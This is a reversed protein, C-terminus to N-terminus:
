GNEEQDGGPAPDLVYVGPLFRYQENFDLGYGVVFGDEMTFGVYDAEFHVRRRKRKDLFACVKVSRPNRLKLVDVIHRLTLGSDLIDEVVLVDRGAIDTEIDKTIVIKGSSETGAGYSAARIFDTQCPVSLARILDAMFVFAGKLVGVVLIERGAYDRSIEGAMERVRGSIASPELLVKKRMDGM